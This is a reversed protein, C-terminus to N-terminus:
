TKLKCAWRNTHTMTSRLSPDQFILNQLCWSVGRTCFNIGLQIELLYIQGEESIEKKIRQIFDDKEFGKNLKVGLLAVVVRWTVWSREIFRTSM